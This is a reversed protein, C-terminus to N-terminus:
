AGKADKIASAGDVIVRVVKIAAGTPGYGRLIVTYYGPQTYTHLPTLSQNSQVTDGFNWVFTGKSVTGIFQVTLPAPGRLPSGTLTVVPIKGGGPIRKSVTNSDRSPFTGCEGVSRVFFEYQVGPTLGTVIATTTTKGPVSQVQGPLTVGVPRYYVVFGIIRPDEPFPPDWELTVQGIGESSNTVSTTPIASDAVASRCFLATILWLFIRM